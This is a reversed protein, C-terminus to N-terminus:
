KRAEMFGDGVDVCGYKGMIRSWAKRGKFSIGECGIHRAIRWCCGVVEDLRSIINRGGMSVVHMCDGARELILAAEWDDVKVLVCGEGSAVRERLKDATELGFSHRCSKEILPGAKDWVSYVKDAPIPTLKM